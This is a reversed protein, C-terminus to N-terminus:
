RMYDRASIEKGNSDYYRQYIVGDSGQYSYIQNGRGDSDYQGSKKIYKDGQPSYVYDDSSDSSSSSSSSSQTEAVRKEITIEMSTDNGNFSDNGGYVCKVTYNGESKDLKLIGTGNEDTVVSFYSSTKNTDTVTINISQNSIPTENLDTLKVNISGGEQLTSNSTIILKTDQKANSFMPFAIVILLAIIIIVLAIIIIKNKDMNM